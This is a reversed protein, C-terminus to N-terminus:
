ADDHEKKSNSSSGAGRRTEGSARQAFRSGAEFAWGAAFYVCVSLLVCIIYYHITTFPMHWISFHGPSM